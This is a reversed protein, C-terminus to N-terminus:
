LVHRWRPEIMQVADTTSSTLQVSEGGGIPVAFANFVGTENSSVLIKSKDPSFSSGRFTTNGLFDEITYQNIARAEIGADGSQCGALTLAMALPLLYLGAKRM